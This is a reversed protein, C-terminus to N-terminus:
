CAAWAMGRTIMTDVEPIALDATTHGVTTVFIRGAGWTRIWSVPIRVGGRETYALVANAPDTHVFCLESHVAFPTLGAVIPHASCPRVEYDVFEAPHHVFQGGTLHHYEPEARFADILGGHWGALGTGARVAASLGALQEGTIAGMTWCQVILDTVALAETDAYADLTDSLTVEFGSEELVAAYKDTTEVPSHGDWGGRVVLAKM